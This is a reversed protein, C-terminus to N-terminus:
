CIKMLTQIQIRRIPHGMRRNPILKVKMMHRLHHSQFVRKDVVLILWKRKLKTTTHFIRNVVRATMMDRIRPLAIRNLNVTLCFFLYCGNYCITFCFESYYEFRDSSSSSGSKSEGSSSDDHESESSNNHQLSIFHDFNAGFNPPKRYAKLGGSM